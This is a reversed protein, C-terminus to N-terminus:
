MIITECPIVMISGIDSEAFDIGQEKCVTLFSATDKKSVVPTIITKNYVYSESFLNRLSSFLPNTQVALNEIGEGDLVSADYMGFEILISILKKLLKEEKLIIIMVYMGKDKNAKLPM